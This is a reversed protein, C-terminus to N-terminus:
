KLRYYLFEEQYWLQILLSPQLHLIEHLFHPLSRLLIIKNIMIMIMMIIIMIM